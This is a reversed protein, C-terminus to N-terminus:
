NTSCHGKTPINYNKSFLSIINGSIASGFEYQSPCPASGIRQSSVILILFFIGAIAKVKLM